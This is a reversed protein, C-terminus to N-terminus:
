KENPGFWEDHCQKKADEATSWQTGKYFVKNNGNSLKCVGLANTRNCPGASWVGRFDKCTGKASEIVREPYEFCFEYESVASANCNGAPSGRLMKCGLLAIGLM